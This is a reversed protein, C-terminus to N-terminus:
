AYHMILPLAAAVVAAAVSPCVVTDAPRRAFLQLRCFHFKAHAARM